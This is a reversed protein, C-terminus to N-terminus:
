DGTTTPFDPSPLYFKDPDSGGCSIWESKYGFRKEHTWIGNKVENLFADKRITAIENQALLGTLREQAGPYGLETLVGYAEVSGPNSELVALVLGTSRRLYGKLLKPRIAQPNQSLLEDLLTIAESSNGNMVAQLARFYNGEIPTGSFDANHDGREYSILARLYKTQEPRANGISDLCQEVRQFYGHRYAVRAISLINEPDDSSTVNEVAKAASLSSITYPKCAVQELEYHDKFRTDLKNPPNPKFYNNNQDGSLSGSLRLDGFGSSDREYVLPLRVNCLEQSGVTVRIGESFQGTLIIGPGVTEDTMIASQGQGYEYVSVVMKLPATLEFDNGEYSVAITSDAYAVKGMGRVMYYRYRLDEFGFPDIFGEPCEFVQNNSGWFEVPGDAYLKMGPADRPSGIRLHSAEASPYYVGCFPYEVNFGFYSGSLSGGDYGEVGFDNINGKASHDVTYRVPFIYERTGSPYLADNWIRDGRRLPNPNDATYSVEFSSQGPRLTVTSSLVRDGYRGSMGMDQSQQYHSFNMNMVVRAGGDPLQEVFHGALADLGQDDVLSMGHEYFPFSAEVGGIDSVKPNPNAPNDMIAFMERAPEAVKDLVRIVRMGLDPAVTVRILGNDLHVVDYDLDKTGAALDSGSKNYNDFQCWSIWSYKAGSPERMTFTATETEETVSVGSPVTVGNQYLTFVLGVATDTSVTFVDDQYGTASVEITQNKGASSRAFAGGTFSGMQPNLRSDPWLFRSGLSTVKMRHRFTGVTIELVYSGATPCKAGSLSLNEVAPLRNRSLLLERRGKMDYLYVQAFSGEFGQFRIGQSTFEIRSAERPRMPQTTPLSNEGLLFRGNQDTAVQTEGHSVVAQAIAIGTQGVVMGEYHVNAPIIWACICIGLTGYMLRM